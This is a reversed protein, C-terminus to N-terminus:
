LSYEKKNIIFLNNLYLVPFILLLVASAAQLKRIHSDIKVLLHRFKAESFMGFFVIYKELIATIFFLDYEVNL